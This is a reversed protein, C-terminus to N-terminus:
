MNRIWRTCITRENLMSTLTGTALSSRLNTRALGASTSAPGGPPRTSSKHGSSLQVILACRAPLPCAESWPVTVETHTCCNAWEAQVYTRVVEKQRYDGSM